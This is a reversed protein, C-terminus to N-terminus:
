FLTFPLGACRALKLSAPESACGLEEASRKLGQYLAPVACVPAAEAASSLSSPASIASSPCPVGADGLEVDRYHVTRPIDQVAIRFDAPDDLRGRTGVRPDAAKQAFVAKAQRRRRRPGAAPMAIEASAGAM